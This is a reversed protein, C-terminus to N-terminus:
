RLRRFPPAFLSPGSAALWVTVQALGGAGSKSDAIVWTVLRGLMMARNIPHPGLGFVAHMKRCVAKCYLGPPGRAGM